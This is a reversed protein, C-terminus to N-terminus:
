NTPTSTDPTHFQSSHSSSGVSKYSDPSNSASSISAADIEHEEISGNGISPSPPPSHFGNAVLLQPTQTQLDGLTTFPSNATPTQQQFQPVIPRQLAIPSQAHPFLELLVPCRDSLLGNWSWTATDPILPHRLFRPSRVVLACRAPGEHAVHREVLARSAWMQAYQHSDQSVDAAALAVPKVGGGLSEAPRAQAQAQARKQPSLVNSFASHQVLNRYGKARLVDFELCVLVFVLLQMSSHVALVLYFCTNTRHFFDYARQTCIVATNSFSTCRDRRPRRELRRPPARPPRSASHAADADALERADARAARTPAARRSTGIAFGRVVAVAVAEAIAGAGACSDPRVREGTHAAHRGRRM